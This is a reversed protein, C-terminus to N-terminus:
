RFIKSIREQIDENDLVINSVYIDNEVVPFKVLELKNENNFIRNVIWIKQDNDLILDFEEFNESITKDFFKEEYEEENFYIKSIRESEKDVARYFNWFNKTENTDNLDIFIENSNVAVKSYKEFNSLVKKPFKAVKIKNEEEFIDLIVYAVRNINEFIDFVKLTNIDEFNVNIKEYRVKNFYKKKM